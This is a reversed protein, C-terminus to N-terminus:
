IGVVEHQAPDDGAHFAIRPYIAQPEKIGLIKVLIGSSAASSIKDLVNKWFTNFVKKKFWRINAESKTRSFQKVDMLHNILIEDSIDTLKDIYGIVMKGYDQKFLERSYWGLTMMVPILNAKGNMGISVGDAYLSIPVLLGNPDIKRIDELTKRAWESSMLDSYVDENNSNTKKHYNIHVHEKWLFHIIPNVCQDAILEM